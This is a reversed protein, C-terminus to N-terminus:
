KEQLLANRIKLTHNTRVIYQQWKSVLILAPLAIQPSSLPFDLLGTLGLIPISFLFWEFFVKSGNYKLLKIINFLIVISFGVFVMGAIIGFDTFFALFINHAHAAHHGTQAFYKEPFGIPNLGFQPYQMILDISNKWIYMRTGFNSIIEHSRPFIQFLWYGNICILTITLITFRLSLRLLFIGFLVLIVGFGSRSGTANIGLIILILLPIYLLLQKFTKCRITKLLKVLLFGLAFVLLFASYNPNYASGYLRNHGLFGLLHSGTLYGVISNSWGKIFLVRNLLGFIYQYVGGFIFIWSFYNIQTSMNQTLALLYVGYFLVITISVLLYILHQQQLASGISSLFMILFLVTIFDFPIGKRAKINRFIEKGGLFFMYFIGIPPLFILLALGAMIPQERMFNIVINMLKKM